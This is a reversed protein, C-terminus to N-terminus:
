TGISRHPGDFGGNMCCRLITDFRCDLTSIRIFLAGLEVVNDAKQL